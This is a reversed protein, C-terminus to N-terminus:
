HRRVQSNQDQAVQNCVDLASSPMHDKTLIKIGRMELDTRRDRLDDFAFFGEGTFSRQTEVLMLGNQATFSDCSFRPDADPSLRKIDGSAQFPAGEVPKIQLNGCYNARNERTGSLDNPNFLYSFGNNIPLDFLIKYGISRWRTQYGIHANSAFDCLVGVVESAGTGAANSAMQTTTSNSHGCAMFLQSFVEILIFGHLSRVSLCKM